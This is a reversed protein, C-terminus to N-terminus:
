LETAGAWSWAVPPLVPSGIGLGVPLVILDSSLRLPIRELSRVEAFFDHCPPPRMFDLRRIVRVLPRVLPRALPRVLPRRRVTLLYTKIYVKWSNIFNRLPLDM